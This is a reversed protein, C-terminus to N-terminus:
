YLNSQMIYKYICHTGTRGVIQEATRSMFNINDYVVGFIGSAAVDRAKQRMADSLQKLTGPTKRPRKTTTAANPLISSVKAVLNSYSESIGLHSLVMLPQRQSGTAYLYLAM